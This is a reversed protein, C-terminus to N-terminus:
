GSGGNDDASSLLRCESKFPDAELPGDTFWCALSLSGTTPRVQNAHRLLEDSYEPNIRRFVIAASAMAAVTEGALDSGPNNVDIRYATRPTTM